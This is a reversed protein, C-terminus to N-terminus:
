FIATKKSNMDVTHIYNSGLLFVLNNQTFSQHHGTIKSFYDQEQLQIDTEELIETKPDFQLLTSGDNGVMM